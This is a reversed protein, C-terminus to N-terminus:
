VINKYVSKFNIFSKIVRKMYEWDDATQKNRTPGYFKLNDNTNEINGNKIYNIFLRIINKIYEPTTNQAFKLLKDNYYNFKNDECRM